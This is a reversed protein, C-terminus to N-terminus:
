PARAATELGNVAIPQAPRGNLVFNATEVWALVEFFFPDLRSTLTV